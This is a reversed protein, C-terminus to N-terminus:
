NPRENEGLPCPTRNGELLAVRDRQWVRELAAETQEQRSRTWPAYHRETIRISQHGLLVSVQEMPVGALLLEVAFTDRFRHAHADPVEALRFLNRLRTEWVKVATTLKGAGTWFLYRETTTPTAEIAQVVFPPLVCYVPTGTKATYLFLRNGRIRDRSLGVADGIRIGSYRLLLILTRLRKANLRANRAARGTYEDTAALIKLVEDSTFPMTPRMKIKPPKLDAAPNETLWKRRLAFGLFARLRELKKASSRPGDKWEARFSTVLDIDLETLCRLGRREAFAEIQKFLMRYKYITSENLNRAVTDALFRDRAEAFTLPQSKDQPGVTGHRKKAELRRVKEQGDDWDTEGLTQRIKERGISGEVWLPCDCRRYARGEGRHECGRKHRRYVKLMARERTSAHWDVM